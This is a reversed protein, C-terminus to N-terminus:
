KFYKELEEKSMNMKSKILKERSAESVIGREIQSDVIKEALERKTPTENTRTTGKREKFREIIAKTDKNNTIFGKEELTKLVQKEKVGYVGAFYDTQPDSVDNVNRIHYGTAGTKTVVINGYQKEDSWSNMNRLEKRVQSITPKKDADKNFGYNYKSDDYGITKYIKDLNEQTLKKAKESNGSKMDAVYGQYPYKEDADYEALRQRAEKESFVLEGGLRDSKGNVYNNYNERSNIWNGAKNQYVINNGFSDVIKNEKVRNAIEEQKTMGTSRNRIGDYEVKKYQGKAINEKLENEKVRYENGAERVIYKGSVDKAVVNLSTGDPSQYKDSIRITDDNLMKEKVAKVDYETNRNKIESGTIKGYKGNAYSPNEKLFNQKAEEFDKGEWEGLDNEGFYSSTKLKYTKTNRNKSTENELAKQRDYEKRIFTDDDDKTFNNLENIGKQKLYERKEEFTPEKLEKPMETNYNRYREARTKSNYDIMKSASKDEIQNEYAEVKEITSRAKDELKQEQEFSIYKGKEKQREMRNYSKEYQKLEYEAKGKHYESRSIDSAKNPVGITGDEFVPIRAKGRSFWRKVVKGNIIEPTKTM